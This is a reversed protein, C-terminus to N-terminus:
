CSTAKFCLADELPDPFLRYVSPYCRSEKPCWERPSEPILPITAYMMFSPILCLLYGSRYAWRSTYLSTAWLVGSAIVAGTNSIVQNMAVMKGRQSPRSIEALFMVLLHQAFGSALGQVCRGAIIGAVSTSGLLTSASAAAATALAFMGAKRGFRACIQGSILAAIIGTGLSPFNLALLIDASVAYSHKAPYYTGFDKKFRALHRRPFVDCNGAYPESRSDIQINWPM